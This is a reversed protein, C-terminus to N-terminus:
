MVSILTFSSSINPAFCYRNGTVLQRYNTFYYLNCTALQWHNFAWKRGSVQLKNQNKLSIFYASKDCLMITFVRAWARTGFHRVRAHLM